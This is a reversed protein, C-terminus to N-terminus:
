SITAFDPMKIRKYKAYKYIEVLHTNGSSAIKIATESAEQTDMLASNESEVLLEVAIQTIAAQHNEPQPQMSHAPRLVVMKEGPRIARPAEQKGPNIAVEWGSASERLTDGVSDLADRPVYLFTVPKAILHHMWPNLQATSWACFDLLPFAKKMTRILKQVPAADLKVPDPYRSYWGRGANHIIGRKVADILYLNLTKHTFSLKAGSIASRITAHSFHARKAKLDDLIKFLRTKKTRAAPTITSLRM